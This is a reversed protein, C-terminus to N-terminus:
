PLSSFGGDTINHKKLLALGDLKQLLVVDLRDLALMQFLTDAKRVTFVEASKVNEDYIKWGLLYGVRWHRLDSWNQITVEPNRTFASMEVDFLKVPVQILHPYSNTLGAIRLGDGDLRGENAEALSRGGALESVVLTYGLHGLAEKTVLTMFEELKPPSSTGITLVRDKAQSHIVGLMCIFFCVFSLTHRM